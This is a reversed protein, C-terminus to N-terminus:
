KGKKNTGMAVQTQEKKLVEKQSQEMSAGDTGKTMFTQRERRIEKYRERDKENVTVHKTQQINMDKM